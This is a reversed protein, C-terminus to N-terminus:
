NSPVLFETYDSSIPAVIVLLRTVDEHQHFSNFLCRCSCVLNSMITKKTINNRNLSKTNGSTFVTIM